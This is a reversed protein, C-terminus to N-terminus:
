NLAGLRALYKEASYGKETKPFKEKLEQYTKVAEENKGSLELLLAARFLYESALAQDDPFLTAASKYHKVAEDNKKMESYADGLLGEAKAGLQLAGNHKFAELQKVANQYDGLHLYCEGAYLRAINGAGTSGYKSIVKLFGPTTANGNLALALSDKRFNEEARFIEESAKEENPLQVFNKYALWGGGLVIVATSVMVIKKSYKEWFNRASNVIQETEQEQSHKESM